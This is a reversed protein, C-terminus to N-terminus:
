WISQIGTVLLIGKLEHHNAIYTVRRLTGPAQEDQVISSSTFFWSSDAWVNSKKQTFLFCTMNSRFSIENCARRHDECVVPIYVDFRHWKNQMLLEVVFCEVRRSFFITISVRTSPYIRCHKLKCYELRCNVSRSSYSSKRNCLQICKHYLANKVWLKAATQITWNTAKPPSTCTDRPSHWRCFGILTWSFFIFTM